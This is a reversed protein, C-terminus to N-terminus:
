FGDKLIGERKIMEEMVSVELEINLSKDEYLSDLENKFTLVIKDMLNEIKEKAKITNDSINKSIELYNNLLNITTPLFYDMFMGINGIKSTDKQVFDFIARGYNLLQNTQNNINENEIKSNIKQMEFLLNRGKNIIEDIEKNGTDVDEEVLIVKDKFFRKTFIYVIVSVAFVIAINTIKYMDFILAFLVWTLSSLYIPIASKIRKEKM